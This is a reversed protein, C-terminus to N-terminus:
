REDAGVDSRAVGDGDGDRGRPEGDIDVAAPSGGACRWPVEPDTVECVEDTGAVARDIAPSGALLHIDGTALDRYLPDAAFNDRHGERSNIADADPLSNGDFTRYAPGGLAWFDNGVLVLEATNYREDGAISEVAGAGDHHTILNDVLRARCSARVIEGTMDSIGGGEARCTVADGGSDAITNDAIQLDAEAPCSYADPIALSTVEIGSVSSGVIVNDALWARLQVLAHNGDCFNGARFSLGRDGGEIRNSELQVRMRDGFICGDAELAVVTGEDRRLTSNLMRVESRVSGCVNVLLGRDLVSDEIVIRHIMGYDSPEVHTADGRVRVRRLVFTSETGLAGAVELGDMVFSSGENWLTVLDGEIVTAHADPSRQWAFEENGGFGGYLVYGDWFQRPDDAPITGSLWLEAEGARAMAEALTPDATEWSLGDAPGPAGAKVYLRPGCRIRPHRPLDGDPSLVGAEPAEYPGASFRLGTAIYYYATGPRPRDPDLAWTQPLKTALCVHDYRATTGHLRFGEPGIEGRYLGYSDAEAAQSWEIRETQGAPFWLEDVDLPGVFDDALLFSSGVLAPVLWAPAM